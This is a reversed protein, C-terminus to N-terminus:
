HKSSKTVNQLNLTSTLRRYFCRVHTCIVKGVFFFHIDSSVRNVYEDQYTRYETSVTALSYSDRASPPVDKISNRRSDLQMNLAALCVDKGAVIEELEKVKNEMLQLMNLSVVSDFSNEQQENQAFDALYPSVPFIMENLCNTEMIKRLESGRETITQFNTTPLTNMINVKPELSIDSEETIDDLMEKVYNCKEMTKLVVPPCDEIEIEEVIQQHTKPKPPEILSTKEKIKEKIDAIGDSYELSDPETIPLDNITKTIIESIEEDVIKKSYPSEREIPLKNITDNLINYVKESVNELSDPENVPDNMTARQNHNNTSNDGFVEEPMDDITDQLIRDMEASLSDLSDPDNKDEFIKSPLEDITHKLIVKVDAIKNANSDPFGEFDVIRNSSANAAVAQVKSNSNLNYSANSVVLEEISHDEEFSKDSKQDNPPETATRIAITDGTQTLPEDLLTERNLEQKGESLLGSLSNDDAGIESVDNTTNFSHDDQILNKLSDISVKENNILIVDEQLPSIEKQSPSKMLDVKSSRDRVDLKVNISAVEDDDDDNAAERHIKIKIKKESLDKLKSISEVLEEQQESLSPKIDSSKNVDEIERKDSNKEQGKDEETVFHKAINEGTLLDNLLDDDRDSEDMGFLQRKKINVNQQISDSEINSDVSIHESISNNDEFEDDDDKMTVDTQKPLAM